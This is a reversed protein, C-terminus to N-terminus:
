NEDKKVFRKIADVTSSYTRNLREAIIKAKIKQAKLSKILNIEEQTWARNRHLGLDRIQSQIARRTRKLTSAIDAYSVDANFLAHLRNVEATTWPKYTNRISMKTLQKATANETRGVLQAIQAIPMKLLYHTRILELEEDTWKTPKM